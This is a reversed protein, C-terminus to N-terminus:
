LTKTSGPGTKVGKGPIGPDTPENSPPGGILAKAKAAAVLAANNMEANAEGEADVLDKDAVPDYGDALINRRKLENIYADRSIDGAMRAKGIETLAASDAMNLSFDVNVAAEGCQEPAIKMWAGTCVLLQEVADKLGQGIDQLVSTSEATDVATATATINGSRPTMPALAMAQMQDEIKKLDDEGSKISSGSHEVYVLTAGQPQCMLRNPGIEQSGTTGGEPQDEWGTGFLIPVRAVHLIHRQDSSSQWHSVNLHALDELLPGQVTLPGTQKACYITVLPIFNIATKGKDYIAWVKKGGVAVGPARWLEWAGPTLVRYQEIEKEGWLGDQEIIAEKLVLRQLKGASYIWSVVDELKYHLWTPSMKLAKAEAVTLTRQVGKEDKPVPPMDVLIHTLGVAMADATVHSLFRNFDRGAGDQGDVDELLVTIEKPTKDSITIPKSFLKGTLTGVAKGYANFLVTRALRNNYAVSTEKPEQPLYIQGAKRMEITGGM